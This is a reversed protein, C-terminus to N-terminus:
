KQLFNVSIPKKRAKKATIKNTKNMKRGDKPPYKKNNEENQPMCQPMFNLREGRKKGAIGKIPIRGNKGKVCYINMQYIAYSHTQWDQKNMSIFSLM